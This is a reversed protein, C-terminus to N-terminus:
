SRGVATTVLLGGPLLGALLLFAASSGGADLLALARRSAVRLSREDGVRPPDDDFADEELVAEELVGLLVSRPAFFREVAGGGLARPRACLGAALGAALLALLDAPFVAGFFDSPGVLRDAAGAFFTGAVTAVTAVRDDRAAGAGAAGAGGM